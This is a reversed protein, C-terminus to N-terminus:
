NEPTHRREPAELPQQLPDQLIGTIVELGERLDRAM